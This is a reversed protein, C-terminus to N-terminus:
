PAVTRATSIRPAGLWAAALALSLLAGLAVTVGIARLVPTTSFALVGFTIVTTAVCLALAQRTRERQEDNTGANELFLAYNLGIGLVLLLAVLHFVSIRTGLAVLVAAALVLAALCPAMVRGARVFSRLGVVLLLAILAAGIAVQRLSERLYNDVMGTSIAKLDVLRTTGNTAKALTSEFARADRVGALTTLALWQGDAQVVLAELKAALPTGAYDARTVPARTKAARVDDLFPTFADPRFPLGRLATALNAALAAPEPLAARRADQTATSPLLTAPSDYGRLAGNSKERDLVPLLSEARALAEAETAGSTAALLGVDPAGMEARLQADRARMDQSIPSLNALDREWWAPHTAALGAIAALTAVGALLRTRRTASFRIRPLPLAHVVPTHGAAMWPVLWRAAAGAVVIGVMTLVGLQALGQFGSFALALASAVTTLVGLALTRSIRQLAGPDGSSQVLVYNPYDVAEGVLTAGFGLTIAHVSGFGAQVALVGAAIGLAVPTAVLLVARPSRYVYALLALVAVVSIGGLWQADREIVQHSQAAFAGPGTILAPRGKLGLPRVAEEVRAVAAAQAVSDYGPARTQAVLLARRGKTDFWVGHLLAPQSAPVLLRTLAALEGTPDRPLLARTAGGLPSSFDDLRKELTEHLAAATFAEPKVQPSLAYRRAMLLEVLGPSALTGGNSVFTFEPSSALVTALKRSANALHVDVDGQLAILMTRSVLGDRLQAVLLRQEATTTAPLFATFDSQVHVTKALAFALLAFLAAVIALRM